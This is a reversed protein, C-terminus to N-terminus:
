VYDDNKPSYRPSGLSYPLWDGRVVKDVASIALRRGVAGVKVAVRSIAQTGAYKALRSSKKIATVVRVIKRSIHIHILVPRLYEKSTMSPSQIHTTVRIHGLFQSRTDCFAYRYLIVRQASVMRASFLGKVSTEM